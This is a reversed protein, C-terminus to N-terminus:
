EYKNRIQHKPNRIQFMYAGHARLVSYSEQSAEGGVWRSQATRLRGIM